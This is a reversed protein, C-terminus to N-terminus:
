LRRRRRWIMIGALLFLVPLSFVQVTFLMQEQTPNPIFPRLAPDKPSISILSQESALWAVSRLFFDTNGPFTLYANSVFTSNGIIVIAAKSLTTDTKDKQFELAGALVIPGPIDEEPDLSPSTNELNMEAWSESSTHALSTFEWDLGAQEKFTVGGSVPLIIPVSMDHTIEHETFTKVLLATPSGQAVRDKPDVVIGPSFEVGWQHILPDLGHSTNPDVLLLLRGGLSLFEQIHELEELNLPDQPGPIILVTAEDVKQAVELFTVDTVDYGQKVLKSKALSLGGKDRDKVRREGHGKLVWIEKKREKTVRILASTLDIETPQSAHIVQTDSEFVATDVSTIEYKRAMTPNKEPDVFQVTVHPSAHTFSELFDRYAGFKPRKEHSFVIVKVPKQLEGLVKYTQPSLTFRQTESLDWRSGHRITLFNIIMLIGLLLLVALISNTGMRASRQKSFTQLRQWNGVAYVILCFLAAGECLTIAWDQSPVWSSLVYGTIALLVGALGITPLFKGIVM